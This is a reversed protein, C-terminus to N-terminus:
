YLLTNYFLIANGNRETFHKTRINTTVPNDYYIVLWQVLQANRNCNVFNISYLDCSVLHSQIHAHTHQKLVILTHQM